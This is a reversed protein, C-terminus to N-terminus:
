SYEKCERTGDRAVADSVDKATPYFCGNIGLEHKTDRLQKSVPKMM